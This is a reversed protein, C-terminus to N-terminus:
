GPKQGLLERLRVAAQQAQTLREREKQVVQAPAKSTFAANALKRELAAIEQERRRLEADLRPREAGGDAALGITVTTDGVVVTQGGAAGAGDLELEALTAIYARGTSDQLLPRSSDIRAPPRRVRQDVERRLNRVARVVQVLHGMEGELAADEHGRDPVPWPAYLITDGQHPLRQWLEETIFPMIPHLLRLTVELVQAAVGPEALGAKMLELHYDAFEHWAFEYLADIAPGFEFREFGRTVIEVVRNLRGLIWRDAPGLRSLDPRGAAESKLLVLRTANWLKNAFDRYDKIKEQSFRIDQGSTGFYTCWARTADAGYADVVDLPDVGTGLSKSMRRGDTALVTAHILVDSFPITRMFHLSLFVMRAVWLYIIDRGTDLVQTPYFRRLDETDKPWGLTAFPWLG